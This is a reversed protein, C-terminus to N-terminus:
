LDEQDNNEGKLFEKINLKYKLSDIKHVGILYLCYSAVSSGRGLGWVINKSRMFDVLYKVCNLVDIMDLQVFLELEEIVRNTQEKTQCKNLLWDAIDFSQYEQPIFWIKQNHEDFAKIDVSPEQYAKLLKINDANKLVQKNFQEVIRSNDVILEDINLADTSYLADLIDQENLVVIGYKDTFM